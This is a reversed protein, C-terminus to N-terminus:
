RSSQREFTIQVKCAVSRDGAQEFAEVAQELPFTHSIIPRVDIARSSILAVADAGKRLTARAALKAITTTKGVGTPGVLAYVGGKDVIDDSEPLVRLNHILASKAWKLAAEEDFHGPLKSVLQRCLAPSMGVTLLKRFLEAQKPHYDELNDWALSAMQATLLAKLERM